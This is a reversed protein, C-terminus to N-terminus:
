ASHRYACSTKVRSIRNRLVRVLQLRPLQKGALTSIDGLLLCIVSQSEAGVVLAYQASLGRLIV